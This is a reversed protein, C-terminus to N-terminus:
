IIFYHIKFSNIWFLPIGAVLCIQLDLYKSLSCSVSHVQLSYDNFIYINFNCYVPDKWYTIVKFKTSYIHEMKLWPLIKGPSSAGKNSCSNFGKLSAAAKAQIALTGINAFYILCNKRLQFVIIITQLYMSM